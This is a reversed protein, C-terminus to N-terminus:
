AFELAARFLMRGATLMGNGAQDSAGHRPTKGLARIELQRIRERSLGLEDALSQLTVKDTAQTLGFRSRVITQERPDLQHIWRIIDTM